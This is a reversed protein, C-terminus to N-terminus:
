SCFMNRMYCHWSIISVPRLTRAQYLRFRQELRPDSFRQSWAQQDPQELHEAGGSANEPWQASARKGLKGGEEPEEAESLLKPTASSSAGSRDASEGAPSSQPATPANKLAM